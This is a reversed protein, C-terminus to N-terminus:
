GFFIKEADDYPINLKRVIANIDKYTLSCSNKGGLIIKAKSLSVGTKDAFSRPNKIEPPVYAMLLPTDLFMKDDTM